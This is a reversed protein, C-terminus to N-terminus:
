NNSVNTQPSYLHLTLQITKATSGVAVGWLYIAVHMYNIHIYIYIYRYIYIHYTYICLQLNCVYM